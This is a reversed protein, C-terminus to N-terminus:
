GDGDRSLGDRAKQPLLKRYITITGRLSTTSGVAQWGRRRLMREAVDTSTYLADFDLRRAEQEIAAILATAVGKGRHAKGVLLAALWPGQGIESGVSEAKLAATGLVEDTEGLAVLAIPLTDRRCSAVLDEEADGPGDDGYWPEWTEVFWQALLPVAEPVEVLHVIRLAM